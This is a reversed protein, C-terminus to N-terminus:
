RHRRWEEVSYEQVARVEAVSLTHRNIYDALTQAEHESAFMRGTPTGFIHNQGAVVVAWKDPDYTYILAEDLALYEDEVNDRPVWTGSGTGTDPTTATM